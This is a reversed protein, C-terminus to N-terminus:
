SFVSRLFAMVYGSKLVHFLERGQLIIGAFYAKLEAGVMQIVFASGGSMGDPDIRLPSTARVRILAGDKPQGDPLCLVDLRALGLHNKAELEYAQGASPFGTLLMAMVNPAPTDPPLETFDFFRKKLDPHAEVPETFDFAAIDNGDTDLRPRYARFGGSTVLISGDDKLMAVQQPDVTRLQHNSCLLIYRGGFRVATASGVLSVQYTEHDNLVVLNFAYRSLARQISKGPIVLGNLRVGLRALDEVLTTEKM